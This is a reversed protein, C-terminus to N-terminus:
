GGPGVAIRRGRASELFSRRRAVAVLVGRGRIVEAGARGRRRAFAVDEGLAIEVGGGLAGLRLDVLESPAPGLPVARMRAIVERRLLVTDHLTLPDVVAVGAPVLVVWRRSLAHLSRTVLAALAAGIVLVPLGAALRADAVLLPGSAVGAAVVAVAVPVPGALLPTPIRIPFRLEDGYALANAAAAAVPASLGLACAFAAGVVAVVASGTSTAPVAVLVGAVAAPAVVRLLTCGWPRPALLALLGAAWAGWLMLAAVFAPRDSWGGLADSWADGATVPQVMWAIRACWLWTGPTM